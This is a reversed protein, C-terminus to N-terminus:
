GYRFRNWHNDTMGAQGTLFLRELPVQRYDKKLNRVLRFSAPCALMVFICFLSKLYNKLDKFILLMFEFLSLCPMANSRNQDIRGGRLDSLGLILSFAIGQRNEHNMFLKSM